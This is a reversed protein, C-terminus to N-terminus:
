GQDPRFEFGFHIRLSPARFESPLPPFPSADVVARLASQDYLTNGSERELKPEKIQGDRGIEFMIVAREGGAAAARPPSWRESIKSQIQRLYYTFPFDSVDLSLSGTSTPGTGPRGLPAPELGPRAAAVAAPPAPSSPAPATAPPTVVRPASEAPRLPPPPPASVVAPAPPRPPLPTERLRERGVTPDLVPAEKEARRPLALEEPRPPVARAVETGPTIRPPPPPPLRDALREPPREPRPPPTERAPAPPPPAQAKEPKPPERQEVKKPAPEAKPAPEPPRAAREPAPKSTTQAGRAQEASPPAPVLNVIYVKSRDIQSGIYASLGLMAFLFLGHGLLSLAFFGYPPPDDAPLIFRRPVRYAM